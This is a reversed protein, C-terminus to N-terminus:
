LSVSFLYDYTTDDPMITVYVHLYKDERVVNDINFITGPQILHESEGKYQSLEELPIAKNTKAHLIVRLKEKGSGRMSFMRATDFDNTFSLEGRFAIISKGKKYDNIVSLLSKYGKEHKYLEIEKLGRYLQLPNRTIRREMSDYIVNLLNFYKKVKLAAERSPKEKLVYRIYDDGWRTHFALAMRESQGLFQLAQASYMLEKSTGIYGFQAFLNMKERVKDEKKYMAWMTEPTHAYEIRRGKIVDDYLDYMLAKIAANKETVNNVDYGLSKMGAVMDYRIYGKVKETLEKNDIIDTFAYSKVMRKANAKIDQKLAYFIPAIKKQKQAPTDNKEDIPELSINEDAKIPQVENIDDLKDLFEQKPQQIVDLNKPPQGYFPPGSFGKDPKNAAVLAKAQEDTYIREREAQSNTLARMVCRCQYGNPPYIEDYEKTGVKLIVGHLNRHNDRTASDLIAVYKGWPFSQKSEMQEIYSGRAYATMINTRFINEVRYDPLGLALDGSRALKKFDRFTGGDRYVKTLQDKIYDVQQLSAANAFSFAMLKENHELAYYRDPMMTNRTFFEDWDFM